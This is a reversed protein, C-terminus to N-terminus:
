HVQELTLGQTPKPPPPPAPTTVTPPRYPTIRTPATDPSFLWASRDPYYRRLTENEAPGLDLAWVVRASDIDAANWVWENQFAHSPEYHVFILPRGPLQAVKAAIAARANGGPHNIGDWTDFAELARLRPNSDLLHVPYWFAFPLLAFLLLARAAFAGAPGTRHIRALAAVAALPLVAALAGAYHPFFFPYLNGGLLFLACPFLVARWRHEALLLPFALLALYLPPSLFFRLFRVRYALRALFRAPSDAPGHAASQMRYIGAQSLTLPRAPTPLPEFTFTTPVGYQARSERYPLTTWAGTVSHNQLLTLAIAPLAAAAALALPRRLPPNRFYPLLFFLVAALLFISEFPRTLLHIGLGLGLLIADRPRPRATLRPLAGFVLCGSLAPLHGGWYCNTWDNLPGFRALALAAGALAWDPSVWGRLMWYCLGSFAAMALLVGSWPLGTLLRGAALLMGMGLPYISSYTPQQLVFITEFFRHMPHTPNALRGHLLTDAVLLHGFEDYVSPTPIPHNPLLALRLALAVVALLAPCRAPHRGIRRVLPEIYPRWLLLPGALLLAALLEIWDPGGFGLPDALPGPL